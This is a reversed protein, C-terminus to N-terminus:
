HERNVEVLKPLIVQQLLDNFEVFEPYDSGVQLIYNLTNPIDQLYLAKGDRHYLRAFIGSAKVHRQIGTLDFWRKFTQWDVDSAYNQWYQKSMDQVSHPPWQQYCDRLLSVLDYTIPGVVADQFDIVAIEDDVVMLNRSHYDRHVGVQPQALFNDTLLAFARALAQQQATSLRLQLHVECLWHRFLDYESDLLAQDFRPLHETGMRTCTQIRPIVAVAKQYWHQYNQRNIVQSFLTDGLDSQCIFGQEVDIAYVTPVKIGANQYIQAIQYFAQNKETQPPADVAIYSQQQSTFRFYRRFSADGSIMTLHNCQWQDHQQLWNFLAQQRTDMFLIAFLSFKQAAFAILYM